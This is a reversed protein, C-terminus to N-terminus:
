KELCIMEYAALVSFGFHIVFAVAAAYWLAGHGAFTAGDLWNLIFPWSMFLITFQFANFLKM